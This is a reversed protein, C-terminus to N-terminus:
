NVFRYNLSIYINQLTASFDNNSSFSLTQEFRGMLGFRKYGLGAGGFFGAETTQFDIEHSYRSNSVSGTGLNTLKVDGDYNFSAVFSFSLGLHVNAYLSGALKLNRRFGANTRLYSRSITTTEEATQFGSPTTQKVNSFNVKSYMLEGIFHIKEKRDMALALQVGFFPNSSSAKKPYVDYTAPPLITQSHVQINLTSASLGAIFTLQPKYAAFIVKHNANLKRCDLYSSVLTLMPKEKYYDKRTDVVVSPCDSFLFKLQDRYAENVRNYEQGNIKESITSRILQFAPEEGKRIFFLVPSTRNGRNVHYYLDIDGLLLVKMFFSRGLVMKESPPLGIFDSSAYLINDIYAFSVDGTGYSISKETANTRFRITDYRLIAEGRLTDRGPLVLRAPNWRQGFSQISCLTVMLAVAIKKM